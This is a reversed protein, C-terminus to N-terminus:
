TAHRSCPSRSALGVAAMTSLWLTFLASFPPAADIRMAIVRAFLDLPLLAMNEYVRQTQQQVGDNMRGIDLIAIAADQKKRGKEPHVREQFLEKGITAILPPVKLFGQRLDQWLEFSFDDLAGISRFSEHAGRFIRRALDSRIQSASPLPGHASPALSDHPALPWITLLAYNRPGKQAMRSSNCSSWALGPNVKQTMGRILLSALAVSVVLM